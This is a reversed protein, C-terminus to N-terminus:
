LAGEMGLKRVLRNVESEPLSAIREVLEAADDGGDSIRQMLRLHRLDDLEASLQAVTPHDFLWQIPVDVSLLSQIRTMVQMALLSHGGIEFFNDSRGIRDIALLESWIDAIMEELEGEPAEYSRSAYAEPGPVPLARRDLKGNTTLPWSAVLVFASPVMYEPLVAKLYERLAEASPSNQNAATFYAVLRRQGKDDEPALVVAEKLQEHRGLQTEIEGLEIRYGRVKVQDDNRGLYELTGNPRWRGLDGTKYLRAGPESGFRDPIFREATWDPRNLYGRSVGAGGIYIEGPVGIPAPQQFAGLVYIGANAVPRGIHLVEEQDDIRGSTAVVTSETPGYNNVLAFPPSAPRYRLQDGGVLLTRLQSNCSGESLALEALPTPLFSVDLQQNKWWAILGPADGAFEAPALALTAGVSLPPWIEWTAADFGLAAMCSCRWGQKLEFADCHWHVLNALGRHEVMVGKPTGTSGSTYIVYARHYGRASYNDPELNGVPNRGIDRWGSDLAVVAASSAPLRDILREQTLLLKPAADKLVYALRQAPHQPDLPLYAAGAKLIGLLGV